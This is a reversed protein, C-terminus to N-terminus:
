RSSTGYSVNTQLNIDSTRGRERVDYREYQRVLEASTGTTRLRVLEAHVDDERRVILVGENNGEKETSSTSTVPMQLHVVKM